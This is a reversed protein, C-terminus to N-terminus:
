SGWAYTLLDLNSLHGGFTEQKLVFRIFASGMFGAGGTVLIHASNLPLLM